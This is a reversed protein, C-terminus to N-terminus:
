ALLAPQNDPALAKLWRRRRLEDHERQILLRLSVFAHLGHEGITQRQSGVRASSRKVGGDLLFTGREADSWRGLAGGLLDSNTPAVVVRLDISM